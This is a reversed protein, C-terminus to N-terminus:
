FNEKSDDRRYGGIEFVIEIAPKPSVTNESINQFKFHDIKKKIDERFRNIQDQDAAYLALLIHVEDKKRGGWIWNDPASEGWDGLMRQRVPDTMGVRFPIPFNRINKDSLGIARLGCHSFAINLSRDSKYRTAPTIAPIIQHLMNRTIGADGIKVFFFHSLPLQGFGRLVLGQIDDLEISVPNAILTM